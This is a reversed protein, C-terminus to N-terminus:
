LIDNMEEFTLPRGYYKTYDFNNTRERAELFEEREKKKREFETLEDKDSEEEQRRKEALVADNREKCKQFAVSM